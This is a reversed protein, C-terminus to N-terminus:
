EATTIVVAQKYLEAYRTEFLNRPYDVICGELPDAVSITNKETDYGVLLMCHEPTYWQIDKGDVHWIRSLHGARCYATGWVIVPIDNNIYQSLIDSLETGSINEAKLACNNREIYKNASNVIVPAYCGFSTDSRPNGVFAKTFDVEGVPGKDLYNDALDCKDAPYGYYNLAMTLSVIECGTALEPTQRLPKIGSRMKAPSGNQAAPAMTTEETTTEAIVTLEADMDEFRINFKNEGESLPVDSSELTWLDPNAVMDDGNIRVKLDIDDKNIFEGPYLQPGKYEAYISEAKLPPQTPTEGVEATQATNEQVKGGDKNLMLVGISVALILGTAVPIVANYKM